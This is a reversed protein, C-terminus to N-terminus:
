YTLTGDGIGNKLQTKDEDSLANWEPRFEAPRMGFYKMVDVM